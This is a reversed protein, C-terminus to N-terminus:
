YRQIERLHDLILLVAGRGAGYDIPGAGPEASGRFLDGWVPMDSDSHARFTERGDVVRIMRQYPFRGGNRNTLQTLDSPRPDMLEGVM